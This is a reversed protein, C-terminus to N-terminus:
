DRGLGAWESDVPEPSDVLTQDGVRVRTAGTASLWAPQGDRQHLCAYTFRGTVPGADISSGDSFIHLDEEDGIRVRCLLIAPNGPDRSWTLVPTEGSSAQTTPYVLVAMRDQMPNGSSMKQFTIWDIDRGAPEGPLDRLGAPGMRHLRETGAQESEPLIVKVGPMGASAFGYATEELSLPSHFQWDLAKGAHPTMIDDVILWYQGRRFAFHRRHLTDHFRQYGAHTAAFYDMQEQTSWVLDVGEIGRKMPNAEAVMLMNHAKAQKYWSVHVPDVYGTPGIAADLAIPIGNAYIEFDLIDYHGHNQFPGYNIKMFYADRDWGDRMVVFHSTPFLESTTEPFAPEIGTAKWKEEPVIHKVPGIFDGRNFFKAMDVLLGTFVLSRRSDNFPVNVGLPSLTRSTFEMLKELRPLYAELLSSDDKAYQWLLMYRYFMGFVFSTYSGTREIYGGDDFIDKEFHEIMNARSTGLWQESEKFEPFTFALYTQTMATQTQWNYPHFPTRELCAQMWRGAGLLYKLMQVHTEPSLEEGMSRMADLFRPTRVGLGLEYWVVNRVKVGPGTEPPDIANRQTYWQNFLSEFASAYKDDGTAVWATVLDSVFHLYHFGYKSRDTWNVNFDVEWGFFRDALTYGREPDVIADAAAKIAASREPDAEVQERFEGISLFPINAERDYHYLRGNDERTTFWTKVKEPSLTGDANTFRNADVLSAVLETDTIESIKDRFYAADLYVDHWESLHLAPDIESRDGNEVVQNCLPCRWQGDELYIDSYTTIVPGTQEAGPLALPLLVLAGFIRPMFKILFADRMIVESKQFLGGCRGAFL